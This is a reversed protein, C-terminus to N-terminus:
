SGAEEASGAKEQEALGVREGDMLEDILCRVGGM